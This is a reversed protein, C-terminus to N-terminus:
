NLAFQIPLTFQVKVPKGVEMGPTWKEMLGVVRLAEKDLDPDVGRAIRTNIVEGSEDIVFSVYVKGTIKNKKANEPYTVNEVLFSKLGEIGGPYEPMVEAEMYVDGKKKVNEQANVAFSCFAVLILILFTTKM